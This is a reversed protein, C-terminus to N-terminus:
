KVPPDGIVSKAANDSFSIKEGSRKDRIKADMHNMRLKLWQCFDKACRGCLVVEESWMHGTSKHYPGKCIICNMTKKYAWCMCRLHSQHLWKRGKSTGALM